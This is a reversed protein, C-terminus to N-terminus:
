ELWDNERNEGSLEGIVVNFVIKITFSSANVLRLM